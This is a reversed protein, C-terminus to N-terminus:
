MDYVQKRLYIFEKDAWRDATSGIPRSHLVLSWYIVKGDFLMGVFVRASPWNPELRPNPLANM